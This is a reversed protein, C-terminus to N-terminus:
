PVRRAYSLVRAQKWLLNLTIVSQDATVFQGTVWAPHLWQTLRFVWDLALLVM